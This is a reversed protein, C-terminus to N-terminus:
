FKWIKEFKLERERERKIWELGWIIWYSLLLSIGRIQSLAVIYDKFDIQALSLDSAVVGAGERQHINVKM